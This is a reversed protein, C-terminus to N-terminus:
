DSSLMSSPHLCFALCFTTTKSHPLISHWGEEISSPSTNTNYCGNISFSSGTRYLYIYQIKSNGSGVCMKFILKSNFDPQADMRKLFRVPIYREKNLFTFSHLTGFPFLRFTWGEILFYEVSNPM